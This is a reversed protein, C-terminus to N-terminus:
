WGCGSTGRSRSRAIPDSRRASADWSSWTIAAWQRTTSIASISGTTPRRWGTPTRCRRDSRRASPSSPTNRSYSMSGAGEARDLRGHATSVTPTANLRAFPFAFYDVHNHILDFEHARAYVQGLQVMTFAVTDRVEPDLRLGQPCCAVLEADTQSDGSAFLTVDHGRRVLEETLVSVVRETGGYLSPPVAEILPAVIAIRM